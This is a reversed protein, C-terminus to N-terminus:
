RPLPPRPQGSPCAECRSVEAAPRLAAGDGSLTMLLAGLLVAYAPRRLWGPLLPPKAAAGAALRAHVRGYFYPRPRAQPQNRLQRLLDDWEEDPTFRAPSDSM